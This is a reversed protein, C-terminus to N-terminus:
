QMERIKEFLKKLDLFSGPLNLIMDSSFIFLFEQFKNSIKLFKLYVYAIYFTWYYVISFFHSAQIQDKKLIICESFFILM